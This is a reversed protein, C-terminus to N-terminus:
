GSGCQGQACAAKLLGFAHVIEVPVGRGSVPFNEVARQTSAGWLAWDPVSMEGMSDKEIRQETANM